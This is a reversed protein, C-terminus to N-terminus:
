AVEQNDAHTDAQADDNKRVEDEVRDFYEDLVDAPATEINIGLTKLLAMVAKLTLSDVEKRDLLAQMKLPVRDTLKALDTRMQQRRRDNEQTAYIHYQRELYGDATFWKRVTPEKFVKGYNGANLKETIETFKAGMYRLEVAEHHYAQFKSIDSSLAKM